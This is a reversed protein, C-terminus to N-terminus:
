IKLNINYIMNLVFAITDFLKCPFIKQMKNGCYYNKKDVEKQTYVNNVKVLHQNKEM